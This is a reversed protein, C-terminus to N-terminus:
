LSIFTVEETASLMLPGELPPPYTEGDIVFPTDLWLDILFARGSAYGEREMWRAPKGRLLFPAASAARVAPALIDLWRIPGPGEGWFPNMRAALPGQLTTAMGIFRKGDPRKEGDIDMAAPIGQRLAGREGEVLIRTLMAFVTLAVLASGRGNMEKHAVRTSEAYVGWGVISGRIPPIDGSPYDVRLLPRRLEIMPERTEIRRLVEAAARPSRLAGVERAILNTNGRPVIGVRPLTEGWIEPLRSLVERVTGDGGDVVLVEVGAAHAARLDGTMTELNRPEILRVGIPAPQLGSVRNRTSARNRILAVRSM